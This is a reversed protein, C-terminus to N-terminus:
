SGDSGTELVGRVEDHLLVDYSEKPLDLYERLKAESVSDGETDRPGEHVFLIRLTNLHSSSAVRQDLSFEDFIVHRYGPLSQEQPTEIALTSLNWAGKVSLLVGLTTGV